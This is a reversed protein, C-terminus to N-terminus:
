SIRALRSFQFRLVAWGLTRLQSQRVLLPSALSPESSYVRSKDSHFSNEFDFCPAYPCSQLVELILLEYEGGDFTVGNILWTQVNLIVIALPPLISLAAEEGESDLNGDLHGALSPLM